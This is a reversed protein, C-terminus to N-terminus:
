QVRLVIAKTHDLVGMDYRSVKHVKYQIGGIDLTDAPTGVDKDTTRLPFPTYVVRPDRSREAEPLTLLIEASAPQHNAEIPIVTETGSVYKGKVYSGDSSVRTVNLTVKGTSRPNFVTM